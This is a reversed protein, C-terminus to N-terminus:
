TMNTSCYITCQQIQLFDPQLAPLYASEHWRPAHGAFQSAPSLKVVQKVAASLQTSTLCSDPPRKFTRIVNHRHGKSVKNGALFPETNSVVGTASVVFDCGYAKGNTLQVYVPWSGLGASSDCRLPNLFHSHSSSQNLFTCPSCLHRGKEPGVTQQPSRLQEESTLIKEVECQYELLVSRSVQVLVPFFFVSCCTLPM